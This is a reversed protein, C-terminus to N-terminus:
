GKESIIVKANTIYICRTNVTGTKTGLTIKYSEGPELGLITYTTLKYSLNEVKRQRFDSHLKKFLPEASVKLRPCM